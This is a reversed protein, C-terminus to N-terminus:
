IDGWELESSSPIVEAVISFSLIFNVEQRALHLVKLVKDKNPELIEKKIREWDDDSIYKGQTLRLGTGTERIRVSRVRLNDVVDHFGTGKLKHLIIHFYLISLLVVYEEESVLEGKALYFQNEGQVVELGLQQCTKFAKLFEPRLEQVNKLIRQWRKTLPTSIPELHHDSTAVPAPKGTFLSDFWETGM